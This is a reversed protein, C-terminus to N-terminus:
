ESSSAAWSVVRSAHACWRQIMSEQVSTGQMRTRKVNTHEVRGRGRRSENKKAAIEAGKAAVAETISKLTERSARSAVFAEQTDHLASM